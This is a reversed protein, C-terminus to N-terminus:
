SVKPSEGPFSSALGGWCSHNGSVELVGQPEPRCPGAGEGVEFTCAPKGSRSGVDGHCFAQSLPPPLYLALKRWKGELHVTTPESGCSLRPFHLLSEAPVGWSPLSSALPKLASYLFLVATEELWYIRLKRLPTPVLVLSLIECLQMPLCHFSKLM